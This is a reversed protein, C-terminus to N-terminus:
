FYLKFISLINVAQAKAYFDEKLFLTQVDKQLEPFANLRELNESFYTEYSNKLVKSNDYYFQYPCMKIEGERGLIKGKIIDYKIKKYYDGFKTKWAANPKLLTREWIYETSKPCYEAIWKLYFKQNIKWNEPLSVALKIFDKTMFPSTQYAKKQFVQAGLVTRNSAINRFYFMEEREYNRLINQLHAEIKPLFEANYVIKKLDGKYKYPKTNFGGLIGDGIQGSHFIKFDNKQQKEIAYNAHIGGTFLCTGESIATLEDINKLFIGGNLPVFEYPIEFDKAIKKSITEDLYGSQSFCFASTKYNNKLAYLLAVRSDLGGSLLSLSSSGYELDKEYEMKIAETFIRDTEFLADKESGKFYATNKLNFYDSKELTNTEINIKLFHGDELKYVEKLPTSDELMNICVLIQYLADINPESFINQSKLTKDLRLLSSDIFIQDDKKTYFLRQTSTPNTFVLIEKARKNWIFGRFEGELVEIAKVNKTKILELFFRPFDISKSNLLQTKNLILGEIGIKFDENDILFSDNGVPFNTSISVENKFLHISFGTM